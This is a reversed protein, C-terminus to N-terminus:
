DIAMTLIRSVDVRDNPDGNLEIEIPFQQERENFHFTKFTFGSIRGGRVVGDVTELNISKDVSNILTKIWNGSKKTM